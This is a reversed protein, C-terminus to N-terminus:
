LSIFMCLRAETANLSIVSVAYVREFKFKGSHNCNIVVTDGGLSNTINSHMSVTNIGIISLELDLDHNGPLFILKTSSNKLKNTSNALQQLTFCSETPCSNSSSPKIYYTISQGEMNYPAVSENVSLRNSLSLCLFLFLPVSKLKVESKFKM